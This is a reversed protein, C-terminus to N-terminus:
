VPATRARTSRDRRRPSGSRGLAILESVMEITVVRVSTSVPFRSAPIPNPQLAVLNTEWMLKCLLEQGGHEGACVLEAHSAGIAICRTTSTSCGDQNRNEGRAWHTHRIQHGAGRRDHHSHAGIMSAKRDRWSSPSVGIIMAASEPMSEADFRQASSSTPDPNMTPERLTFSGISRAEWKWQFPSTKLVALDDVGDCRPVGLADDVIRYV